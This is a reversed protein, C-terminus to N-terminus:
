RLSTNCEPCYDGEPVYKGCNGCQVMEIPLQKGCRSCSAAGHRVIEGCYPCPKTIGRSYVPPLIVVLLLAFPFLACVVGWALRNRGKRDAVIAGVVGAALSLVLLRSM